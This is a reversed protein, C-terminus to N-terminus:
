APARRGIVMLGNWFTPHEDRATRLDVLLRYEDREGIFDLTARRVEPDNTDDVLIIADRALYPEALKVGDYQNQYDHPGDYFYFGIPERHRNEFYARFDMEYFHTSETKYREFGNNFKDRPGGYLSFNDVGIGTIHPNGALGSFFTFGEFTGVNLYLSGPKLCRAISNVIYGNAITSMRSMQHLFTDVNIPSEDNIVTNVVDITAVLSDFVIRGLPPNNEPQFHRFRIRSLIDGLMQEHPVLFANGDSEM